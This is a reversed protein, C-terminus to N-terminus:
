ANKTMWRKFLENDIGFIDLTKGVVFNVLDDITKPEHYFAPMAPLIVGGAQTITLMNQLHIAHFPTERAVVILKNREKICVDACRSILDSSIGNAIRGVTGMSCPIIIMGQSRYSGSSVSAALNEASWTRILDKLESESKANSIQNVLYSILNEKNEKPSEYKFNIGMEMQVVKCATQSLILDILYGQSVLFEILRIGYISGSAGTIAVTIPKQIESM